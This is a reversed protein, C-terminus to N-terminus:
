TFLLLIEVKINGSPDACQFGAKCLQCVRSNVESYYGPSCRTPGATTSMCAQGPLCIKCKIQAGLSYTGNPCPESFFYCLLARLTRTKM